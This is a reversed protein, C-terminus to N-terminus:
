EGSAFRGPCSAFCKCKCAVIFTRAFIPRAEVGGYSKKEHNKIWCMSSNIQVKVKVVTYSKLILSAMLNRMNRLYAWHLLLLFTKEFM